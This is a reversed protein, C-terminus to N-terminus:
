GNERGARMVKRILRVFQWVALAVFVAGIIAEVQDRTLPTRAAVPESVREAVKARVGTLGAKGMAVVDVGGEGAVAQEVRSAAADRAESLSGAVSEKTAAVKETVADKKEQVWDKARSKVDAKHVLAELTEGMEQRTEGIAERISDPDQGV